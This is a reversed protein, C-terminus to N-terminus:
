RQSPFPTNASTKFYPKLKLEIAEIKSKKNLNLYSDIDLMARLMIWITTVLVYRQDSYKPLPNLGVIIKDDWDMYSFLSKINTHVDECLKHYVYFFVDNMKAKKALNRATFNDKNYNLVINELEEFDRNMIYSKLDEGYENPNKRIRKILEYTEYDGKIVFQDYLSEENIIGSFIFVSEIFVRLIARSDNLLGYNSIILTSNYSEIIKCYLALLVVKKNDDNAVNTSYMIEYALSVTELGIEFLDKNEIINQNKIDLIQTGLYGYKEFPM